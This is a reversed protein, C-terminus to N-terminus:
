RWRIGKSEKDSCTNRSESTQRWLKTISTESRHKEEGDDEIESLRADIDEPRNKTRNNTLRIIRSCVSMRLKVRRNQKISNVSPLIYQCPSRTCTGKLFYQCPQRLIMGPNCKSRTDNIAWFTHRSETDTKTCSRPNRPPPQLPRRAFVPRKREM